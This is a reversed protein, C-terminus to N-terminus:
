ARAVRLLERGIWAYWLPSVILGTIGAPAVILISKPDLVILRGLYVIVLLVGLAMGLQALNRPMTANRLAAASLTLVGLGSVGFTLLGRPDVPFPLDSAPLAAPPHIVNALDYAGHIVAGLTGAVGLALGLLALGGTGLRIREYAAVLAIVSLIGGAVLAASYVLVELSNSSILDAAVFAVSYVIAVVAAAIAAWGGFRTLESGSGPDGTAERAVARGAGATSSAGRSSAV